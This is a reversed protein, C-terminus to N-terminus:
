FDLTLGDYGLEVGRPLQASVTKYDITHTMHVLITREAGISQAVEIAQPITFHTRHAEYRLADLILYRVGRLTEQAAPPVVNCDTAYALDGFRFGTVAVAGHILPFPQVPFGAAEFPSLPAIEHLDLQALAGSHYDPSPEFIYNFFRRIEALTAPTGYCPIRQKQIFNFSRLDDTGLIHDAHAHTFLVGDVREIDYRLAQQRLDTSADILLTRGDPARVVASTRLRKNKPDPSLCV